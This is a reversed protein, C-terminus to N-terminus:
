PYLLTATQMGILEEPTYGTVQATSPNAYNITGDPTILIIADTSHEILARFIQESHILAERAMDRCGGLTTKICALCARSAIKNERKPAMWQSAKKYYVITISSFSYYFPCVIYHLHMTVGGVIDQLFKKRM